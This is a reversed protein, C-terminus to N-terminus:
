KDEVDMDDPYDYPDNDVGEETEDCVDEEQEAAKKSRKKKVLAILGILGAAAITGIIAGKAGAGLKFTKNPAVEEVVDELVNVAEEVDNINMNEFKEM